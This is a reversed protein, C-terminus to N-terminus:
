VALSCEHSSKPPEVLVDTTLVEADVRAALLLTLMEGDVGALRTNAGDMLVVVGVGGVANGEVFEGTNMDLSVPKLLM